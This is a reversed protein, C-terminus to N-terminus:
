LNEKEELDSQMLLYAADDIEKIVGQLTQHISETLKYALSYQVFADKNEKVNKPTPMLDLSNIVLELVNMTYALQEGAKALQEQTIKQEM